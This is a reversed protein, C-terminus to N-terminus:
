CEIQIPITTALQFYPFMSIDSKQSIKFNEIKEAAENCFQIIMESAYKKRTSVTHVFGSIPCQKSARTLVSERKRTRKLVQRLDMSGLSLEGNATENRKTPTSFNASTLKEDAGFCYM